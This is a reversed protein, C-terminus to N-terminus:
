RRREASRPTDSMSNQGTGTDNVRTDTIVAEHLTNRFVPAAHVAFKRSNHQQRLCLCPRQTFLPHFSKEYQRHKQKMSIRFTFM